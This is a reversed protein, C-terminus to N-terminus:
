RLAAVPGERFREPVAPFRDPPLAYPDAVVAEGEAVGKVVEVYRENSVGLDIERPELEEGSVVFCWWRGGRRFVATAPLVLAGRRVGTHIRVSATMGPRLREVEGDIKVVVDYVNVSREHWERRRKPVREIRTVTGTYVRDEIGDVQIEARQGERLADLVTEHVELEVQMRRLDPIRLVTMRYYVVSGERIYRSWWSRGDGYVVIGEAPAYVKCKKVWNEFRQLWYHTRRLERGASEKWAALEALKGASQKQVLELNMEANRVAATLELQLAPRLHEKLLRINAQATKVANQARIVMDRAQLFAFTAQDLDGRGRYGREFLMRVGELRTRELLLRAQAEAVLTMAEELAM